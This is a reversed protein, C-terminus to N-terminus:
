CFSVEDTGIEIIRYDSKKIKLGCGHERDFNVRFSLGYLEEESQEFLIFISMLQIDDNKSIINYKESARKKIADEAISYWIDMENIFSSIKIKYENSLNEETADLYDALYLTINKNLRESFFPMEFDTDFIIDHPKM